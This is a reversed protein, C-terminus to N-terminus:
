EVLRLYRVLAGNVTDENSEGSVYRMFRATVAAQPDDGENLNRTILHAVIETDTESAFVAGAEKLEAALAFGIMWFGYLAVEKSAAEQKGTEFGEVVGRMNSLLFGLAYWVSARGLDEYNLKQIGLIM